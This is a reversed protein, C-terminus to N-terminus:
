RVAKRAPGSLLGPGSRRTVGSRGVPTSPAPRGGPPAARTTCGTLLGTRSSSPWNRSRSRRRAMWCSGSATEQGARARFGPACRRQRGALLTAVVERLVSREMDTLPRPRQLLQRSRQWREFGEAGALERMAALLRRDDRSSVLCSWGCAALWRGAFWCSLVSALGGMEASPRGSAPSWGAACFPARAGALAVALREEFLAAHPYGAVRLLTLEM